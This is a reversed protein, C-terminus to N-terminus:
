AGVCQAQKKADAGAHTASRRKVPRAALATLYTRQPHHGCLRPGSNMAEAVLVIVQDREILSTM